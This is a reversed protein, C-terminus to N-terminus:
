ARIAEHYSELLIKYLEDQNIESLKKLYLCGVGKTHPGLLSFDKQNTSITLYLTIAHKRMSFGLLFYEIHRGSAYHFTKQGFGIISSGWMVAPEGTIDAMIQILKQADDKKDESLTQLYADVNMQNPKTKLEAM